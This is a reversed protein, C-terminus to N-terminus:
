SEEDIQKKAERINKLSSPRNGIKRSEVDEENELAEKLRHIEEERANRVDTLKKSEM